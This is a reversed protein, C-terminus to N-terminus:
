CCSRRGGALTVLFGSGYWGTTYDVRVGRGDNDLLPADRGSVLFTLGDIEHTADDDQPEDLVM